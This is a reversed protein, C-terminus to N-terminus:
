KDIDGSSQMANKNGVRTWTPTGVESLEQSPLQNDRSNAKIAESFKTGLGADPGPAVAAGYGGPSM